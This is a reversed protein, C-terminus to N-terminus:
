FMVGLNLAVFNMRSKWSPDATFDNMANDYRIGAVLMTNGFANYQIGAGIIMSVRFFNVNISPHLNLEDKPDPNNVDVNTLNATSSSIDAKAKFNYSMGLGVEAYFRTYGIEKTRMKLILPVNIYQFKYDLKMDKSDSGNKGLRISDPKISGGFTGISFETGISYNESFFYDLVLGYSINVRSDATTISKSDSSTWTFQPSAKVGLKIQSFAFNAISGFFLLIFIKRM